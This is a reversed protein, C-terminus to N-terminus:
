SIQAARYRLYVSCSEPGDNFEVIEAARLLAAADRAVSGPHGGDADGAGEQVAAVDDQHGDVIVDPDPQLLGPDGVAADGSGDATGRAPLLRDVGHDGADELRDGAVAIDTAEDRASGQRNGERDRGASRRLRIAALVAAVDDVTVRMLRGRVVQLEVMAELVTAAEGSLDMAITLAAARQEWGDDFGANFGRIYPLEMQGGDYRADRLAKTGAERLATAHARREHDLTELLRVAIAHLRTPTVRETDQRGGWTLRAPLWQRLDAEEEPTLPEGLGLGEDIDTM